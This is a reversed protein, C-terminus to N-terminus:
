EARRLRVAMYQKAGLPLDFRGRFIGLDTITMNWTDIVEARYPTDDDLRFTRFSPRMFSYYYLRYGTEEALRDNEPVACVSDWEAPIYRLGNGPVEQLIQLLFAVRKWSEGRLKGGHSWWLVRDERLFTEGHGPYGGRVAGEWFRRIMEEGTINGWGHQINGEYAIEDLVVPKRYKERWENTYEAGRYLDQRQISCHTIWPRTYDYFAFCNHISRLHHYPDHAALMEGFHEWDEQTKDKMLDIGQEWAGGVLYGLYAALHAGFALFVVSPKKKSTQM